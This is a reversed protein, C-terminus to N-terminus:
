QRRRMVRDIGLEAPQNYVEPNLYFGQEEASKDVEVQIRNHEAWPDKRIGTVQWSVKVQALNTRIVFRNAAVEEEVIAQAFRGVVTLQYRFDRNLAEFYAPLEVVARGEDDTVINGNYVNMMDPSEIFSHYLYRNAPDLPHDIKFSGSSKSLAGNVHVKGEFLGAYNASSKGRTAWVGVTPAGLVGATESSTNTGVVADKSASEGWVGISASSTGYVGVGSLSLGRVGVGTYSRGNVGTGAETKGSVAYGTAANVGLVGPSSAYEAHGHIGASEQGRTIGWVGYGTAEGRIGPGATSGSNVVQLVSGEAWASLM